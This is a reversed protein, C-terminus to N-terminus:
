EFPRMSGVEYDNDDDLYSSMIGNALFRLLTTRESTDEPIVIKGDKMQFSILKKAKLSRQQIEYASYKKVFGLTVVQAVRRRQSSTFLKMTETKDEGAFICSLDLFESVTQDTAEALCEGLDFIRNAQFFSKFFLKGEEYVATLKSDLQLGLDQMEIFTGKVNSDFCTAIASKVGADQFKKFTLWGSKPLLLRRKEILQILVQETKKPNSMFVAKLFRLEKEPDVEPYNASSKIVTLLGESDSFELFSIGDCSNPDGPYFPRKPLETVGDYFFERCQQEFLAEAQIRVPDSVLLQKIYTQKGNSFLGFIM